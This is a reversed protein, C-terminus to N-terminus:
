QRFQYEVCVFVVVDKGEAAALGEQRFEAKPEETRHHSEAFVALLLFVLLVQVLEVLERWLVVGTVTVEEAGGYAKDVEERVM